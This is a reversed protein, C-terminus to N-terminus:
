TGPQICDGADPGDKTADSNGDSTMEKAGVLCQAALIEKIRPPKHGPPKTYKGGADLKFGEPFKRLNNENVEAQLALDSIGCCSLTGTSVVNLDLCGDAVGELNFYATPLFMFKVQWNDWETIEGELRGDAGVPWHDVDAAFDMDGDSWAEEIDADPDFQLDYGDSTRFTKPLHGNLASKMHTGAPADVSNVVDVLVDIGLEEIAEMAEEMILRARLLRGNATPQQPSEYMEQKSIEMAAEVMQQHESKASAARRRILWHLGKNLATAITM